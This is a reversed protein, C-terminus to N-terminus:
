QDEMEMITMKALLLSSVALTIVSIDHPYPLKVFVHCLVAMLCLLVAWILAIIGLKM